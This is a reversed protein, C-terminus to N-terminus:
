YIRHETGNTKFIASFATRYEKTHNRPYFCKLYLYLARPYRKAKYQVLLEDIQKQREPDINKQQGDPLEPEHQALVKKIEIHAALGKDLHACLSGNSITIKGEIKQGKSSRAVEIALADALQKQQEPHYDKLPNEQQLKQQVEETAEPLKHAIRQQEEQEQLWRQQQLVELDIELKLREM